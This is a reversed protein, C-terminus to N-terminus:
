VFLHFWQNKQYKKEHYTLVTKFSEPKPQRSHRPPPSSKLGGTKPKAYLNYPSPTFVLFKQVHKEQNEVSIKNGKTPEM